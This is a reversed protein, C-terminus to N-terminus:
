VSGRDYGIPTTLAKSGATGCDIAPPNYANKESTIAGGIDIEAQMFEFRQM